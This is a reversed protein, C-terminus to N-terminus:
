ESPESGSTDGSDTPTAPAEDAAPEHEPQFIGNYTAFMIGYFIPYFILTGLGCTLVIGIIGLLYVVIWMGLHSFFKQAVVKRSTEMAEWFGMKGDVILPLVLSYSLTLYISVLMLLGATGVMAPINELIASLFAEPNQVAEIDGSMLDFFLEFPFALMFFLVLFPLLFLLVVLYFGLINGAYNFGKFFDGFDPQAGRLYNRMYILYGAFLMPQIFSTLTGVIPIMSLMFIGILYLLTAGVMPGFKATALNWGNSIFGSFDFKYGERLPKSFDTM